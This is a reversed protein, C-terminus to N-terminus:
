VNNETAIPAPAIITEPLDGRLTTFLIYLISAAIIVSLLTIGFTKLNNKKNMIM